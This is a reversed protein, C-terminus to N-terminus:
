TQDAEDRVLYEVKDPIVSLYVPSCGADEDFDLGGPM